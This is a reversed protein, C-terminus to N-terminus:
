YSRLPGLLDLDQGAFALGAKKSAESSPTDPFSMEGGGEFSFSERRGAISGRGFTLALGTLVRSDVANPPSDCCDHGGGAGTPWKRFDSRTGRRRLLCTDRSRHARRSRGVLRQNAETVKVLNDFPAPVKVGM